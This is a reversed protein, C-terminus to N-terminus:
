RSVTGPRGCSFWIFVGSPNAPAARTVSPVAHPPAAAMPISLALLVLMAIRFPTRSQHSLHPFLSSAISPRLLHEDPAVCSASLRLWEPGDGREKDIPVGCLGCYKGDPVDVKCVRCETTPVDTDDPTDTM